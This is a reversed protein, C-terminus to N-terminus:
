VGPERRMGTDAEPLLPKRQTVSQITLALPSGMPIFVMFVEKSPLRGNNETFERGELIWRGTKGTDSVARQRSRGTDEEDDDDGSVSEAYFTLVFTM